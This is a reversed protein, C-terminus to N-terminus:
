GNLELPFHPGLESATSSNLLQSAALAGLGSATRGLFQRRILREGLAKNVLLRRM